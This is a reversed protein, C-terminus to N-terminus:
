GHAEEKDKNSEAQQIAICKKLAKKEDEEGTSCCTKKGAKTVYHCYLWKSRRMKHVSPM